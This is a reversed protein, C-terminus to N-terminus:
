EERRLQRKVEEMREQIDPFSTSLIYEDGIDPPVEGLSESSLLERRLNAITKRIKAHEAPTVELYKFALAIEYPSFARIDSGFWRLATVIGKIIKSRTIVAVPLAHLDPYDALIKRQRVDPGGRGESMVFGGRLREERLQNVCQGIHSDWEEDTPTIDAHVSISIGDMFAWAMTKTKM